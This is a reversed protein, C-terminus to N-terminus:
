RKEGDEYVEEVTLVYSDPDDFNFDTSIGALELNLMTEIMDERDKCIIRDGAKLTKNM